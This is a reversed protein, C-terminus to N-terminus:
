VEFHLKWQGNEKVMQVEKEEGDERVRLTAFDGNIKTSIMEGLAVPSEGKDEDSCMAVFLEKGSLNKLREADADGEDAFAAVMGVVMKLSMDLQGQSKATFSEYVKEYNGKNAEDVISKYANEPSQSGCNCLTILIVFCFGIRLYGNM